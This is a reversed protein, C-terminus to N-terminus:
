GDATSRAAAQRADPRATERWGGGTVEARVRLRGAWVCHVTAPCRSDELVALPRVGLGDVDAVQGFRPPRDPPMASAAGDRLRRARAPRLALAPAKMPGISRRRSILAGHVLSSTSRRSRGAAAASRATGLEVQDARLVDAARKGVPQLRREAAARDRRELQPDLIDVLMLQRPEGLRQLPDAGVGVDREDDVVAHRQGLPEAGVADVEALRSPSTRSARASSPGTPASRRSRGRCGGGPSPLPRPPRRSHRTRRRRGSWSWATAVVPGVRRDEAPPRASNSIGQTAIPPIVGSLACGSTSAPASKM